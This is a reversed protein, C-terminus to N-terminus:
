YVAVLVLRAEKGHCNVLIKSLWAFFSSQDKYGNISRVAEDITRWVLAEAESKDVGLRLAVALLREKYENALRKAGKERNALIAEVVSTQM